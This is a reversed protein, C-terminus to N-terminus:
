GFDENTSCFDYFLLYLVHSLRQALEAVLHKFLNLLTDRVRLQAESCM